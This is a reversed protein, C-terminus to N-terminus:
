RARAKELEAVARKSAVHKWSDTILDKMLNAKVKRLRVGLSGNRTTWGGYSFFTEPEASLLLSLREPPSVRVMAEEGDSTMTAFIKKGVRFSTREFHPEEHADPLGLALQRFAKPTVRALRGHDCALSFGRKALTSTRERADRRRLESLSV